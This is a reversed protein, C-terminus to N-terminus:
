GLRETCSHGALSSRGRRWRGRPQAGWGAIFARSAELSRTIIAETHASGWTRIHTLAEDLTSVIAVAIDLSLYEEAWDVDKAPIVTPDFAQM